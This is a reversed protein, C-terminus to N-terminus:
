IKEVHCCYLTNQGFYPKMTKERPLSSNLIRFVKWELNNDGSHAFKLTVVKKKVDQSFVAKRYSVQDRFSFQIPAKPFSKM